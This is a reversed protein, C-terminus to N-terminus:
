FPCDADPDSFIAPASADNEPGDSDDEPHRQAPGHYHPNAVWVDYDTLLWADAAREGGMNRAYEKIAEAVTALAM